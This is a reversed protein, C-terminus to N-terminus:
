NRKENENSVNQKIKFTKIKTTLSNWLIQKADNNFSVMLTLVPKILWRWQPSDDYIPVIKDKWDDDFQNLIDSLAWSGPEFTSVKICYAYSFREIAKAFFNARKIQESDDKM